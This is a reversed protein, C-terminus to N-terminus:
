PVSVRFVKHSGQMTQKECKRNEFGAAGSLLL